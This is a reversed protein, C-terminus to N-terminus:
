YFRKRQAEQKKQFVAYGVIGCVILGIFLLIWLFTSSGSKKAANRYDDETTGAPSDIRPIENQWQGATVIANRDKVELQYTRIATVDHNDTLDGTAATVGIYYGGPLVVNRKVFCTRWKDNQDIDVGVELYKDEYNYYIRLNSDLDKNRVGAYCNPLINRGNGGDEDQNYSETGDNIMGYILPYANNGDGNKYTDIFIGLGQFKENHGMASGGINKEKVYWFAMGDAALSRSNGHIKFSMHIEWAPQFLPVKNWIGGNRSRDDPTLRVYNNTVMTDGTLDFFPVAMGAPSYPKTLSHERKYYGGDPAQLAHLMMGSSSLLLLAYQIKNRGTM